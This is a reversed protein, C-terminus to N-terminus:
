AELGRWRRGLAKKLTKLQQVTLQSADYGIRTLKKEKLFLGTAAFLAGQQLEIKVGRTEEAAQVTFRGDTVLTFGRRSVILTGSEGTFGTLYFWNAPHTVLLSDMRSGRFQEALARRRNQFVREM